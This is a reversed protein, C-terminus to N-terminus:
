NFSMISEIPLVNVGENHKTSYSDTTYIEDIGNKFLVDTGKSFIGHTVYLTVKSAGKRKLVKALEIFTRGGDCIDDAIIVSLGTLDNDYVITEKIEGTALDRLKDARIFRSHGFYKALEATKKNAGADPSVFIGSTGVPFFNGYKSIISLQSDVRINDIVAAVVDSHPDLVRVSKFKLSNIISAFAKLSFSEGEVCVRDQRAYPIYPMVLYTNYDFARHFNDLANKVMVLEMIDDSSQIRALIYQDRNTPSWTSFKYDEMDFKIGIEGGPFTFTKPIQRFGNRIVTIM